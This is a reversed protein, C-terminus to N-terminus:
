SARGSIRFTRRMRSRQRNWFDWQGWRSSFLITWLYPSVNFSFSNTVSHNCSSERLCKSTSWPHSSCAREHCSFRKPGPVQAKCARPCRKWGLDDAGCRLASWIVRWHLLWEQLEHAESYSLAHRTMGLCPPLWLIRHPQASECPM